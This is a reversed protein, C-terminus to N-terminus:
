RAEERAAIMEELSALRLQIESLSATRMRLFVGITAMTAVLLSVAGLVIIFPTAMAVVTAFPVMGALNARFMEWVQLGTLIGYGVLVLLTVGWAAASMRRLLRDRRKEEEILAWTKDTTATTM